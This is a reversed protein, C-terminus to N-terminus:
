TCKLQQMFGSSQESQGKAARAFWRADQVITGPFPIVICVVIRKESQALPIHRSLVEVNELVGVVGPHTWPIRGIEALRQVSLATVM